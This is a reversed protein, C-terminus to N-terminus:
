WEEAVLDDWGCPGRYIAGGEVAGNLVEVGVEFSTVTEGSTVANVAPRAGYIGGDGDVVVLVNFPISWDTSFVFLETVVPGACFLGVGGEIDGSDCTDRGTFVVTQNDVVTWLHTCHNSASKAGGEEPTVVIFVRNLDDIPAIQSRRCLNQRVGALVRILITVVSESLDPAISMPEIEDNMSLVLTLEPILKSTKIRAFSTRIPAINLSSM